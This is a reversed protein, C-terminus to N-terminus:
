EFSLTVWLSEHQSQYHVRCYVPDLSAKWQLRELNDQKRPIRFFVAFCILWEEITKLLHLVFIILFIQHIHTSSLIKKKWIFLGNGLELFEEKWFLTLHVQLVKRTFFPKIQMLIFVDDTKFCLIGLCVLSPISTTFNLARNTAFIDLM